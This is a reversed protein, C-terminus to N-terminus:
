FHKVWFQMDKSTQMDQGIDKWTMRGTMGEVKQFGRKGWFADLTCYTAPKLPHERARVVACFAAVCMGETQRAAQERGDFFAHGIGRGRYARLLVSEGFYFVNHPDICQEEFVPAFERHCEMLPAGTAAGVLTDGDFAGVIVAHESGAFEALYRKEYAMSGEYLYPYDRFVEIRLMALSQLFPGIEAGKLSRITIDTM